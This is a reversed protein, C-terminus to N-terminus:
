PLLTIQNLVKGATAYTISFKEENINHFALVAGIFTHGANFEGNFQNM